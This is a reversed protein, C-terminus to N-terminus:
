AVPGSGSRWSAEALSDFATVYRCTNPVLLFMLLIV